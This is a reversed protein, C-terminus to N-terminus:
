DNQGREGCGLAPSPCIMRDNTRGDRNPRRVYICSVAILSGGGAGIVPWGSSHWKPLVLLAALASHGFAGLAVNPLSPVIMWLLSNVTSM